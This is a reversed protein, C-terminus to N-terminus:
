TRGLRESRREALRPHAVGGRGGQGLGAQAPVALFLREGLADVMALAAHFLMSIQEGGVESQVDVPVRITEVPQVQLCDVSAPKV